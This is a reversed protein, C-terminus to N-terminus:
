KITKFRSPHCWHIKDGNPLEEGTEFSTIWNYKSVLGVNYHPNGKKDFCVDILRYECGLHVPPAVSNGKLPMSNICKLTQPIEIGNVRVSMNKQKVGSM